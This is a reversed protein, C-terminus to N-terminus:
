IFLPLANIFFLALILILFFKQVAKEAAEEKFGLTMLYPAFLKVSMRGGDFPHMPLFNIIAVLFNLFFLWYLFELVLSVTIGYFFFSEPPSYDENIISEPVFGFQGLENPQLKVEVREGKRDLLFTKAVFKNTQLVKFLDSVNNIAIGNVAVIVDDPQFNGLSPSDYVSGCFSTQELVSNVKVGNLISDQVGPFLSDTVAPFVALAPFVVLATLLMLALNSTPGAALFPLIKDAKAKQMEKEDPEVFAGIPLFGLLLVGTSKIKFGHRRGLIGHMGEHVVLIILLSLWAHLPPTIPVGPIEVGPILPAVGPCGKVGILYKLIIDYAQLFLAFLSFGAFGLLGFSLAVFTFFPGVIVSGSLSNGMFFDFAYILGSLLLTSVVFLATRKVIPLKRGLLYDVAVAGFGLIMGVNAFVDLFKKHKAFKDFWPIPKKTKILSILFWTDNKTFKKILFTVIGSVVVFIVLISLFDLAM